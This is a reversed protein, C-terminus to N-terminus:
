PRPLKEIAKNLGKLVNCNCQYEHTEGNVLLKKNQQTIRESIKVIQKYVKKYTPNSLSRSTDPDLRQTM